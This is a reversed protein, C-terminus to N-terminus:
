FLFNLSISTCNLSKLSLWSWISFNCLSVSCCDAFSISESVPEPWPRPKSLASSNLWFNFSAARWVVSSDSAVTTSSSRMWRLSALTCKSSSYTSAASVTLVPWCPSWSVLLWDSDKSSDAEFSSLNSVRFCCNAMFSIWSFTRLSCSAIVSLSNPSNFKTVPM